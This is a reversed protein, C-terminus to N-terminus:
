RLGELWRLLLRAGYGTAGRCVEYEDKDSRATGAIDLHV